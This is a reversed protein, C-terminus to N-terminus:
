CRPALFKLKVLLSQLYVRAEGLGKQFAEDFAEDGMRCTLFVPTFYIANFDQVEISDAGFIEALLAETKKRWAAFKPSVPSATRLKEVVEIQAKLKIIAPSQKTVESGALVARIGIGSAPSGKERGDSERQEGQLKHREKNRVSVDKAERV